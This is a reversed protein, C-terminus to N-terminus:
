RASVDQSASSPINRQVPQSNPVVEPMEVGLFYSVIRPLLQDMDDPTYWDYDYQHELPQGSMLVWGGGLSYEILTPHEQSDTCYVTTGLVLDVFGEHSAFNHDLIEPLGAVLPLLSNEVYNYKDYNYSYGVNGPLIVGAELMSGDAWGEDCAEWFLSGGMYVFNNFRTMNAAYNQYFYTAQDNSIIVLDQGPVLPASGMMDSSLIEYQYDGTGETFGLSQLMNDMASSGWPLGDRFLKVHTATGAGGGVNIVGGAQGIQGGTDRVELVVDYSGTESYSTTTMYENSWATDFSGDGNFDWRFELESFADLDDESMSADLTFETDIVGAPPNVTFMAMPPEDEEISEMQGDQITFMFTVQDPGYVLDYIFPGCANSVAMLKYVLTVNGMVTSAVDLYVNAAVSGAGNWMWDAVNGSNSNVINLYGLLTGSEDAQTIAVTLGATQAQSVSLRSILEMDEPYLPLEGVMLDVISLIINSSNKLTGVGAPSNQDSINSFDPGRELTLRYTGDQLTFETTMVGSEMVPPWGWYAVEEPKREIPYTAQWAGGNDYLGGGYSTFSANMVYVIGDGGGYVDPRIPEDLEQVTAAQGMQEMTSKMLMALTQYVEPNDEFNLANIGDAMLTNALLTVAAPFDPNARLAMVYEEREAVSTGLLNPNMLGLAVVTTELSFEIEGNPDELLGILVPFADQAHMLFFMMPGDTEDVVNVQVAGDNGVEGQGAFGVADLEGLDIGLSDPIDVIGQVLKTDYPPEPAPGAGNDDDDEEGCGGFMLMMGLMLMIVLTGKMWWKM